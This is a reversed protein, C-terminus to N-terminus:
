LFATYCHNSLILIESIDIDLLLVMLVSVPCLSRTGFRERLIKLCLQCYDRIMTAVQEEVVTTFNM